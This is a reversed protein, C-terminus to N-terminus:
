REVSTDISYACNMVCGRHFHCFISRLWAVTGMGDGKGNALVSERSCSPIM